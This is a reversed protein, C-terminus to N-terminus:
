RQAGEHGITAPILLSSALRSVIGILDHLGQCPGPLSCGIEGNYLTCEDPVIATFLGDHKRAAAFLGDQMFPRAPDSLAPIGRRFIYRRCFLLLGCPLM